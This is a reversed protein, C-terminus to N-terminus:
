KIKIVINFSSIYIFQVSGQEDTKLHQMDHVIGSEHSQAQANAQAKAAAKAQKCEKHM